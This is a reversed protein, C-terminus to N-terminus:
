RVSELFREDNDTLLGDRIAVVRGSASAV